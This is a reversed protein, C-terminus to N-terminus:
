LFVLKSPELLSMAEAMVPQPIFADAVAVINM